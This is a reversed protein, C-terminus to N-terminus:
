KTRRCVREGAEVLAPAQAYLTTLDAMKEEALAEPGANLWSRSQHPKLDAQNQFVGSM